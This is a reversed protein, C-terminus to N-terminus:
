DPWYKREGAAPRPYSILTTNLGTASISSDEAVSPETMPTSLVVLEKYWM